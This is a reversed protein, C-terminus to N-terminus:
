NSIVRSAKVPMQRQMLNCTVRGFLYM